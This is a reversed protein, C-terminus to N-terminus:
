GSTQSAWVLKRRGRSERAFMRWCKDAVDRIVQRGVKAEAAVPLLASWGSFFVGGGGGMVPLCCADRRSGLKIKKGEAKMM